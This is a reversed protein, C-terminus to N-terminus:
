SYKISGNIGDKIAQRMAKVKSFRRRLAFYGIILMVYFFNAILATPVYQWKTYRKLLWIRNRQNLYHVIPNVYGEKGKTKSKNSMGAIHYILADAVYMLKYGREHIRFSLDVDESYIFMNEALMGTKRLVSNRVLFACGTIWDVEKNILHAKKPSRNEGKTYTFGWFKNFYSGGNWLLQRNHDFHIRPQVAGITESREIINMLNSLFDPEVITDNNLMMSYDFNNELSYRFGINNGGTFGTNKDSLITVIDPHEKQIKMGSGDASGNDVLIITYNPYDIKKLSLICDNSVEYSNWNVLIIAVSPSTKQVFPQNM